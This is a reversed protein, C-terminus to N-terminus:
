SADITAWATDIDAKTASLGDLQKNVDAVKPAKNGGIEQLAKVLVDLDEANSIDLKRNTAKTKGHQKEHEAIEEATPEAIIFKPEGRIQELQRKTFDASSVITTGHWEKGGRHFGDKKTTVKIYFQNM